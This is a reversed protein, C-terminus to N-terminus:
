ADTEQAKLFIDSFEHNAYVNQVDDNEELADILKLITEAKEDPVAIFSQPRWQMQVQDAALNLDAEMANAIASLQEIQCTIIHNEDTTEVDDAGANVASEFIREHDAAELPYIVEGIRDFMFSVSGAEAMTGGNKNFLNRIEAAARNRNDTMVEVIIAVGAVGYGEYRIEEYNIDEGGGVGKQLAREINDKPMREGRANQIALRLRANAAPDGGGMKAAVTIEKGLKAFILARKKDQAGKRHMINKFKSHGAM